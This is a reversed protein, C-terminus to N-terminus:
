EDFLLKLDATDMFFMMFSERVKAGALSSRSVGEM